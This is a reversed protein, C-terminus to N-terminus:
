RVTIEASLGAYIRDPINVEVDCFIFFEFRTVPCSGGCQFDRNADGNGGPNANVQSNCITFSSNDAIDDIAENKEEEALPLFYDVLDLSWSFLGLILGSTASTSGTEDLSTM